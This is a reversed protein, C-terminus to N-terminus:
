LSADHSFELILPLECELSVCLEKPTPTPLFSANPIERWKLGVRKADEFMKAQLARMRLAFLRV